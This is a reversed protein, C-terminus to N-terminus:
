VSRSIKHSITSFPLHLCPKAHHANGIHPPPKPQKINSESKEFPEGMANNSNLCVGQTIFKSRGGCSKHKGGM